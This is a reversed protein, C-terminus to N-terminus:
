KELGEIQMQHKLCDPCLGHSFRAESHETVYREITQWHDHEDRIKKCEACAPLLGRLIKRETIDTTIGVLSAPNGDPGSFVRGRREYWRVGDPKLIRFETRFEKLKGQTAAELNARVHLMDDPHVLAFFLDPSPKVGPDLGLIRYYGDTWILEGTQMNWEWAGSETADLALRMTRSTRELDKLADRAATVDQISGIARIPGDPLARGRQHVSRIEGDSRRLIRHEIDFEGGAAIAQRMAAEVQERDQPHVMAPFDKNHLRTGPEVGFIRYTEESWWLNGKADSQWSGISAVHQATELNYRIRRLEDEARKRLGGFISVAIGVIAFIALVPHIYPDTAPAASGILLIGLATVALGAATGAIQAALAVALVHFLLPARSGFAPNLVHRLGTAAATLGVVVLVQKLLERPNTM